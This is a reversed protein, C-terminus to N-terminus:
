LLAGAIMKAAIVCLFISFIRRLNVAPLRHALRAGQRAALMTIPALLALALFNIHGLTGPPVGDAPAESLMFVLTAPLSIFLGIASATGIARHIPVNCMVLAPVSLSGGGVGVMASVFGIGGALPLQRIGQPPQAALRLGSPALGMLAAIFIAFIGFTLSLAAGSLLTAAMGGLAAGAIVALGWQRLIATDVADHRAHARCSAISTPIITALSTGVAMHIAIDEEVGAFKFISFLVPVIVIGGGVGFLGAIVGACVAAAALVAVFALLEPTSYTM